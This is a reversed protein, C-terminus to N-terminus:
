LLDVAGLNVSQKYSTYAALVSAAIQAFMNVHRCRNAANTCLRTPM